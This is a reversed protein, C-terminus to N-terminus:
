IGAIRKVLSVHPSNPHKALFGRAQAAAQQHNGQQELTEIRLVAAEQGFSGRPFQSSYSALAQAAASADHNAIATRAADILRLQESLDNMNASATPAASASTVTRSALRSATGQPKTAEVPPLPSAVPEAAPQSDIHPPLTPAIAVVPTAAHPRAKQGVGALWLGVVASVVVASGVAAKVVASVRGVRAPVPAVAVASLGLAQRVRLRQEASPSENAVADLLLRELPTPQDPAVLKLDSM